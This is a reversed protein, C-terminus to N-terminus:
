KKKEKEKGVYFVSNGDSTMLFIDEARRRDSKLKADLWASDKGILSLSHANVRGDIILPLTLADDNKFVSIQGNHELFCFNLQSIDGIDKLRLSSILEEARIRQKGLAKVDLKGNKILVTPPPAFMRKLIVSKTTVFSIVIELSILLLIPVVGYVLPIDPDALPSAAVESILFATILESLQMEGVQRKGTLRISAILTIYIILTRILVPFVAYVEDQRENHTITERVPSFIHAATTM